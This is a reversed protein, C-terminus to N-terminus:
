HLDTDGDGATDGNGETEDIDETLWICDKRERKPCRETCHQVPCDFCCKSIRNEGACENFYCQM